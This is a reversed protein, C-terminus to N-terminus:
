PAIKLKFTNHLTIHPLSFPSMKFFDLTSNVALWENIDEGPPLKIAGTLDGSGLTAKVKQHLQYRLV